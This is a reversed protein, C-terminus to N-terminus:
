ALSLSSLASVGWNPEYDPLKAAKFMAGTLMQVHGCGLCEVHVFDGPGLDGVRADYLAKM